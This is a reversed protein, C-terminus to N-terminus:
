LFPLNSKQVGGDYFLGRDTKEQVRKVYEFSHEIIYTSIYVESQNSTYEGEKRGGTESKAPPM